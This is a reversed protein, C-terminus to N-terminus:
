DKQETQKEETLHDVLGVFMTKIGSSIKAVNLVIRKQIKMEKHFIYNGLIEKDL